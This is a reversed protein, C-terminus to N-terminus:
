IDSLRFAAQTFKVSLKTQLINQIQFFSLSTFYINKFVFHFNHQISHTGDTTTFSLLMLRTERITHLQWLPDRAALHALEHALVADQHSDSFQEAFASPLAITPCWTGFAVPAILSDSSRVAIRRGIGLQRALRSTRRIIDGEQILPQRLQFWMLVVHDWTIKLLSVATGLFWIALLMASYHSRWM